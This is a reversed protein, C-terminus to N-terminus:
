INFIAYSLKVFSQFYSINSPRKIIVLVARLFSSSTFVHIDFLRKKINLFECLEQGDVVPRISM